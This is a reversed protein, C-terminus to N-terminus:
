AEHEIPRDLPYIPRRLKTFRFQSYDSSTVGVGDCEIIHRRSLSTLLAMPTNTGRFANFADKGLFAGRSGFREIPTPVPSFTNTEHKMMAIVFRM